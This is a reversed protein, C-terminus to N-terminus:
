LSFALGDTGNLIESTLSSFVASRNRIPLVEHIGMFVNGPYFVCVYLMNDKWLNPKILICGKIGLSNHRESKCGM